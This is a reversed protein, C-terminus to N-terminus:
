PSAGFIALNSSHGPFAKKGPDAWTVAMNVATCAEGFGTAILKLKGPYTAVDGAAYIGPESTEMRQNVVISDRELALGWEAIAGLRSVFGLLSIVADAEVREDTKTATDLITVARLRDDGHLATVEAPTRIILQGEAALARARDVSAQHARFTNRRHVLYVERAIGQLNLAWDLASDGGGVIVVRRDQFAMPVLVKDFLGRGLWREYDKIPLRRPQFAGIGATIVIARSWYEGDPTRLAFLDRGDAGHERVLATVEQALHVAPEFQMAQRVLGKVLDKALVKPFGAVDFIYKEPYLATLQGGLEPLADVLRVSAGRMGAYFTGFLGAPGAGIITLDRVDGRTM